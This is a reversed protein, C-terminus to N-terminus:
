RRVGRRVAEHGRPTRGYDNGLVAQNRAKAEDKEGAPMTADTWPLRLATLGSSGMSHPRAIRPLIDGVGVESGGGHLRPFSAVGREQRRASATTKRTRLM